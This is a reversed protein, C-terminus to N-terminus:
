NQCYDGVLNDRRLKWQVGNKINAVYEDNYHLVFERQVKCKNVHKCMDISHDDKENVIDGFVDNMDTIYINNDASTDYLKLFSKHSLNNVLQLDVTDTYRIIYIDIHPLPSYDEIQGTVLCEVEGSSNDDNFVM